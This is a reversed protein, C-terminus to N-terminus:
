FFLYEETRISISNCFRHQGRGYGFNNNESCVTAEQQMVCMFWMRPDHWYKRLPRQSTRDVTECVSVPIM